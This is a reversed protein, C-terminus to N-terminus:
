MSSVLRSAFRSASTHITAQGAATGVETIGPLCQLVGNNDVFAHVCVQSRMEGAKYSKNWAKFFDEAMAGPTATSHVMIGSPTIKRGANYCDNRTMYRTTLNM